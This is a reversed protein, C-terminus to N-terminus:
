YNDTVKFQIDTLQPVAERHSTIVQYTMPPHQMDRFPSPTSPHIPFLSAELQTTSLSWGAQVPHISRAQSVHIRHMSRAQSGPALHMSGAQTGPTPHM